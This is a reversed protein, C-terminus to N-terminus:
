PTEAPETPTAAAKVYQEKMREHPATEALTKLAELHATRLADKPASTIHPVVGTGEWDTKTVPHINYMVPVQLFFNDSVIGIDIGHAAGASTEGVITAKGFHKMGYALKEALSFTQDSALIYVPRDLYLPGSVKEFRFVDSREDRPRHYSSAWLAREPEFFYSALYADTPSYGGQHETLDIILAQTNAVFGMSADITSRVWDLPQFFDIAIYGVNGELVQISRFGYNTHAGFWLNWDIRQEGSEAGAKETEESAGNEEAALAQEMRERRAAIFGPNYNVLFHKDKTIKLLDESLVKSFTKHDEIADYKGEGYLAAIASNFGEVKEPFVYSEKIVTQINEVVQRKEQASLAKQATSISPTAFILAAAMLACHRLTFGMM